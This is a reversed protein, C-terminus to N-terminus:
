VRMATTAEARELVFSTKCDRAGPHKPLADMIFRNHHAMHQVVVNLLLGHRGEFGRM